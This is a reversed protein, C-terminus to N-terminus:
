LFQRGLARVFKIKRISSAERKIEDNNNWNLELQNMHSIAHLRRKHEGKKYHLNIIFELLTPDWICYYYSDTADSFTKESVCKFALSYDIDDQFQCLVAAQMFCGLNSSCKVMKKVIHDEILPRQIPLTCYETALILSQVYFKMAMEHNGGVFELDGKLKLWSLHNPYFKLSQKLLQALM